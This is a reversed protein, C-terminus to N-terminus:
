SKIKGMQWDRLILRATRDIDVENGKKLFKKKRGLKEILIEPNGKADIGYYGEIAVSNDGMLSFLITDPERVDSYTRAGVKVDRAFAEKKTMSYKSEQIVGPTDLLLIDETLRIKQMGKTYGAQKSTKAGGRRSIRNILSSKGTNPYGVIGVHVKKREGLEARKAEIRILNRLARSGKGTKASVFVYPKMDKPLNKEIEKKDVLDAKNLVYIIIKKQGGSVYKSVFSELADNRTDEIFRADLVQLIIDSIRVVDKMVDPFKKRQKKINEINGTRRSSFSYRVRAM